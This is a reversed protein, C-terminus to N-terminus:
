YTEMVAVVMIALVKKTDCGVYEFPDVLDGVDHVTWPVQLPKWKSNMHTVRDQLLKSNLPGKQKQEPLFINREEM